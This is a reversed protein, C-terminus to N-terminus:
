RHLWQIYFSTNEPKFGRGIINGNLTANGLVEQSFYTGLDFGKLELKGKYFTDEPKDSLKLNIDSVITGLDTNFSGYAVFDHVYGTFSADLQVRKFRNYEKFGKSPVYQELDREVLRSNKFKIDLFTESVNPLGSLYVSGLLKSGNGFKLDLKRFSFSSVQGKFDGSLSYTDDINNFYPVFHELDGSSLITKDLSAVIGVSDTFHSLSSYTDYNFVINDAITSEGIHFKVSDFRMQRPSILFDTKMKHVQLGTNTEKAELSIVDLKITDSVIQLSQITGNINILKFNSPNFIHPFHARDNIVYAFDSNSITLNDVIFISNTTDKKSKFASKIRGVLKSINLTDGDKKYLSMSLGHIDANNLRLDGNVISSFRYNVKIEDLTLLEEGDPDVIILGKLNFRDLWDIDLKDLSIAFGTKNSLKRSLYQGLETQVAPIQLAVLLGVLNFM